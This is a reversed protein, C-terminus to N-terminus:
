ARERKAREVIGSSFRPVVRLRTLHLGAIFADVMCITVTIRYVEKEPYARCEVDNLLNSLIVLASKIKM